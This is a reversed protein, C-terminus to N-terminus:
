TQSLVTKQKSKGGAHGFCVAMCFTETLSRLVSILLSLYRKRCVQNYSMPSRGTIRLSAQSHNLYLSFGSGFRGPFLM